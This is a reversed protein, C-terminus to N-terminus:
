REKNDDGMDPRYPDGIVMRQARVRHQTELAVGSSWWRVGRTIEVDLRCRGRVSLTPPRM